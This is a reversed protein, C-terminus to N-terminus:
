ESLLKVTTEYVPFVMANLVVGRLVAAPLGRYFAVAGGEAWIERAVGVISRVQKTGELQTQIRTSIVDLPMVATWTVGGTVAGGCAQVWM